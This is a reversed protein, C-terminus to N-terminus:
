VHARGIQLIADLPLVSEDYEVKVTEAHGSQRYRVDEYSPNESSGNAYGATTKIVGNASDIFRQVGWFCGGALYIVKM